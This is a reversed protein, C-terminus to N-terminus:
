EPRGFRRLTFAIAVLGLGAVFGAEVAVPLTHGFMEVGSAFEGHTRADAVHESLIVRRLIDVGYTLPNIHIFVSLWVPLSSIPFFAGSLLMMPMTVLPMIASFSEMRRVWSALFMGVATGAIALLAVGAITALITMLDLRVGLVPALLLIVTGQATAVLSGGVIRGTVLSIRHPPAVLMERLFGFERDWVVLVCNSLGAMVVIMAIMGPLLFQAFSVGGSSPVLRNLGVGFILLFTLPLVLSTLLRGPARVFRLLERKAVMMVTRLEALWDAEVDVDRRVPARSTEGLNSKAM